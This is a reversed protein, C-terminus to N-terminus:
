NALRRLIEAITKGSKGNFEAPCVGKMFEKVDDTVGKELAEPILELLHHFDKAHYGLNERYIQAEFAGNFINLVGTRVLWDPFIVPKGLAWAEYITSGADAIIVDADVLHQMTPMRDEKRCPHPSNIVGFDAPFKDLYENFAPFSSVAKIANHTPAYLIRIKDSPTRKYGGNFIPDLKPWGVVFIRDAPYGKNEHVYEVNKRDRAIFGTTHKEKYAPGPVFLYDFKTAKGKERSGIYNKDAVGHSMLIRPKPAQSGVFFCFNLAGEKGGKPTVTSEPLYKRIPDILSDLTNKYATVERVFNIQM